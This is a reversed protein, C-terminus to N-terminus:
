WSPKTTNPAPLDYAMNLTLGLRGTDAYVWDLKSVLNRKMNADATVTSRVGLLINALETRRAPSLMRWDRGDVVRNGDGDFSMVRAEISTWGPPTWGNHAYAYGNPDQWGGNAVWTGNVYYGGTRGGNPDYYNPNPAPNTNSWYGPTGVVAVLGPKTANRARVPQNYGVWRTGGNVVTQTKPAAKMLYDKVDYRNFAIALDLATFGKYDRLGANAGHVMLLKVVSNHGQQAAWMLATYGARDRANPDCGHVLLESAIGSIGDQAAWTLATYGERDAENPNAGHALLARVADARHNQSAWMLATYGERDRARVDAGRRLLEGIVADHGNLAAWILPTYGGTDRGNIDAGKGLLAIVKATEGHAAASLLDANTDALAAQPAAVLLLGALVLPSLRKM